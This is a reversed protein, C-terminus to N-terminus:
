IKLSTVKSMGHENMSVGYLNNAESIVGDNHSIIIYQARAIYSKILGALKESNRKDLAADVEDMIYFSAPSYENVAFIFALATMTKEGGSLSRIDMYKKGSLKVMISLGSEFLNKPDDIQLFASGKTSLTLFIKKFNENLSDFTKMFLEKKKADIENIMLLVDEKEKSLTNNKEELKKYEEMVKDYIELAKMNVAGIDEIIKEFKKIESQIESLPKNKFPEIDAYMEMEVEYGSLEAKIKALELSFVNKRGEATRAKEDSSSIKTEFATIEDSLKTRKNFLEKFQAYFKKEKEEMGKLQKEQQIILKGLEKKENEFDIKEKDLQKIIKGISEIEPMFISSSEKDSGKAEVNLEMIEQKLENRKEELSNLEALFAPNRLQNIKDRLQQKEIKLQALSRNKESVSNQVEDFSKDAEALQNHLEKKTNKDTELDSDDIHLTKELKIIDAELNAKLERLRQIAEENETKDSELRIVLNEVEAVEKEAQSVEEDGGKDQFGIGLRKVYGGTMAGSSEVLDGSATVMRMRGVGIRRAVDINEVVMTGGFVYKFINDFKSDYKVLDVALGVIGQGKLSRLENPIIQPRIKNMPLFTASGLKETKLLKILKSATMDSDVVISKIRAGAAIELALSHDKSVKGLQSVTGFVGPVKMGLIRKLARDAALAEQAVSNRAKARSLQEKKAFLKDRLNNLQAMFNGDKNLAQSLDMAAKKFEVKKQKLDELQKKNEKELHLMKEMKGDIGQLQIEIKDKERLLEQQKERLGTIAEQLKEAEEDIEQIRQDTKDAGKLDHKEKFKEIKLNIEEIQKERLVIRKKIDEASKSGEDVKSQLEKLNNELDNKRNEIKELEQNLTIIRQNNLASDVKLAEVEKHLAVQEKEGKEEVEKNIDEIKEKREDIDKRISLIAEKYKVISSEQEELKKELDKIEKIRKDVENHLVTAKNRKIKDELEKFEQAQDREKKLEKLYTKREALIIEAENLKDEVRGLERLAKQKKDEYLNIGAIEEVIKRREVGSMEVLRVIDGQLIINYGDPDIRATSLVDLVATRTATEDNIKYVSNGSAKIIRTIKLEKDSIQPFAKHENSFFISVEGQKAPSKTKGGNYILNASKEARLGKAGAKGLVFCLADLVNSKGSGNPGLICNFDSGFDIETKNAFSKFGKMEMKTVLTKKM